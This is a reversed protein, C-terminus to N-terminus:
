CGVLEVSNYIANCDPNYVCDDLLQPKTEPYNDELFIQIDSSKISEGLDYNARLWVTMAETIECVLEDTVPGCWRLEPALVLTEPACIVPCFFMPSNCDENLLDTIEQIDAATPQGNPPNTDEKLFYMKPVGGDEVAWARTVGAQASIFNELSCSSGFFVTSQRAAFIRRRLQADCEVDNGGFIELSYAKGTGLYVMPQFKPSNQDLGTLVSTVPLDVIGGEPVDVAETTVYENGALTKFSTGADVTDGETLNEVRITGTALTAELRILSLPPQAALIDLFVGSATRPNVRADIGNRAENLATWAMGGVVTANIDFFNPKAWQDSEPVYARFIGRVKEIFEAESDTDNFVSM